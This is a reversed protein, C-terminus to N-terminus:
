LRILTDIPAAPVITLRDAPRDLAPLGRGDPLLPRMTWGSARSGEYRTCTTSDELALMGLRFLLPVNEDDETMTEGPLEYLLAHTTKDTCDVNNRRFANSRTALVYRPSLRSFQVFPREVADIASGYSDVIRWSGPAFDAIRRQTFIIVAPSDASRILFYHGDAGASLLEADPDAGGVDWGPVLEGPRLIEARLAEVAGRLQAIMEEASATAGEPAASPDDQAFAAGPSLALCAALLMTLLRM